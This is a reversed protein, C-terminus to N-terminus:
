LPLFGIMVKNSNSKISCNYIPVGSQRVVSASEFLVTPTGFIFLDQLSELLKLSNGLVINSTEATVDGLIEYDMEDNFELNHYARAMNIVMTENYSMFVLGDLLGRINIVATFKELQMADNTEVMCNNGFDIKLYSLALEQTTAVINCLLDDIIIGPLEPYTIIPIIFTLSSGEGQRNNIEIKGKIKEVEYKVTSLGIGRGSIVTIEDATSIDSEFALELIQEKSFTQIQDATYKGKELVNAVLKDEDFGAGDDSITIKFLEDSSEIQFQINGAESKGLHIRDDPYEIGHDVVNRFVHVLSRIFNSYYESDLMVDDGEISFPNILKGMRAALQYTHEPYIKLMEKLSKHQMKKLLPLLQANANYPLFNIMRKELEVLYKKDVRIVNQKNWYDEGLVSSVRELDEQLWDPMNSRLVLSRIMNEDIHAAYKKIHNLQSEMNHLRKVALNSNFQSFNGKFTHLYRNIEEIKLHIPRNNEIIHYLKYKTFYEYERICETWQEHFVIAKVVMSMTNKEEEMQKELRRKETIDSMITILRKNLNANVVKYELQITRGELETETPLLSIYLDTQKEEDENMVHTLVENLLEQEENDRPYVLEALTFGAPSKGFINICESSYEDDIVFDKGFSLFGQGVNDLISKVQTNKKELKLNTELLDAGIAELELNQQKLQKTPRLDQAVLLIGVLDSFNDRIASCNLIVPIIEGNKSRYGSELKATSLNGNNMQELYKQLVLPENLIFDVPCEILEAEKYGLLHEVSQNSSIIKGSPKVMILMDTISEIIKDAAINPSMILLRYKVIAFWMGFAWFLWMVAPLKPLAGLGLLPMLTESGGALLLGISSFIALSRAQGKKRKSKTRYGWYIIIAISSGVYLLYYFVFLWFTLDNVTINDWGFSRLILGRATVGVTIGLYTFIIGPIYVCLTLWKIRWDPKVTTLIITFHLTLAPGLAWGPSSLRFLLWATEKDAAIYMFAICFAWWSCALCLLFFIQHLRARWDLKLGYYGLGLYVFGAMLTILSVFNM